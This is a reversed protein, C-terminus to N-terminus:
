AGFAISVPSANRVVQATAALRGGERLRFGVITDSQENTAYLFGRSPDFGIYRPTRGQTSTWEPAGLLGTAPDVPFAAISDHGRNSCYVYGGGAGVAIESATNESTFDAPLTSLIQAARLHGREAEWFWTTVTSSIENLVWLVTLSPHFAAHRPGAGSRVVGSGQATPTLKGTAADFRFVFVRDLGKDPVVVFKGSPDFLIQHPHSEAQEVRHPGPQGPLPIVHVADELGGDARVPMVAVSGTSYNAVLLFKGSPDVAQHVGNRGGTAARNIQTLRGTERDVAFATVYTEDGHVSYLVQGQRATVLFSPNVIGTVTQVPTWSGSARDVRYVHIGDGRAYRAATTYCGVYAFLASGLQARAVAM